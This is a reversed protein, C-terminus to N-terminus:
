NQVEFGHSYLSADPLEQIYGEQVESVSDSMFWTQSWFTEPGACLEDVKTPITTGDSLNLVDFVTTVRVVEVGVVMVEDTCGHELFQLRDGVDIWGRQELEEHDDLDGSVVWESSYEMSEGELPEAKVTLRYALHIVSLAIPDPEDSPESYAFWGYNFYGYHVRLPLIVMLFFGVVTALADFWSMGYLARSRLKWLYFRARAHQLRRLWIKVRAPLDELVAHFDRLRSRLFHLDTVLSPALTTSALLSTPLPAAQDSDKHAYAGHKRWAHAPTPQAPRDASTTFTMTPILCLGEAPSPPPLPLAPPPSAVTPVAPPLTAPALIRTTRHKAQYYPMCYMGRVEYVAWFALLTVRSYIIPPRAECAAYMVKQKTRVVRDLLKSIGTVLHSHDPQSISTSKPLPWLPALHRVLSLGFRTGLGNSSSNSTYQLNPQTFVGFSRVRDDGALTVAGAPVQAFLAILMISLFSPLTTFAIM